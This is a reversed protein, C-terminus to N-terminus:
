EVLSKYNGVIKASRVMPEGDRRDNEAQFRQFASNQRLPNEQPDTPLVAYHIFTGDELELVAYRLKDPQTKALEKFVDEVLARNEAERGPKVKYQVLVGRM